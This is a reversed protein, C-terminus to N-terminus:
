QNCRKLYVKLDYIKLLGVSVFSKVGPTIAFFCDKVAVRTVSSNLAENM